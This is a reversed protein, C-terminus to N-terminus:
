GAPQFNIQQGAISLGAMLGGRPMVFVTYNTNFSTSAAAGASIAVASAQAGVDFRGAKLANLAQPTNLILLESYTQGGLQPGVSGQTLDVFGVVQGREFLIGRGHAGGAVFAGAQGISPFVAYAYANQLVPGLSPDRAQMQSITARAQDQLSQRGAPSKPATACGGICFAVLAIYSLKSM